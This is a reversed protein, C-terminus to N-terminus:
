VKSMNPAPKAEKPAIDPGPAIIRPMAGTQAPDAPFGNKGELMNLIGGPDAVPSKNQSDSIPDEAKKGKSIGSRQEILDIISTLNVLSLLILLNEQDIGKASSNDLLRLLRDEVKSQNLTNEPM